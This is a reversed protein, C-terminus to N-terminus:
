VDRYTRIQKTNYMIYPFYSTSKQRRSTNGWDGMSAVPRHNEGSGGTEELLLLQGGSFTAILVMLGSWVM